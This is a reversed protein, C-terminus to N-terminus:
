SGNRDGRLLKMFHDIDIVVLWPKRDSRFFVVPDEGHKVHGKAQDMFDYFTKGM